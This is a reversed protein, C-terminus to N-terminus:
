RQFKGQLNLTTFLNFTLVWNGLWNTQKLVKLVWSELRLMKSKFNSPTQMVIYIHLTAHSGQLLSFHLTHTKGRHIKLTCGGKQHIVSANDSILFLISATINSCTSNTKNVYQLDDQPWLTEQVERERGEGCGIHYKQCPLHFPFTPNAKM